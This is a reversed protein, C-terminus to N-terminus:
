GYCPCPTRRRDRDEGYSGIWHRGPDVTQSRDRVAEVRKAASLVVTRALTPAVAAGAVSVLLTAVGAVTGPSRWVTTVLAGTLAVSGLTFLG